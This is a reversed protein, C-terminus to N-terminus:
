IGGGEDVNWIDDFREKKSIEIQTIRKNHVTIIVTGYSLGEVADRIDKIIGDNVINEKLSM